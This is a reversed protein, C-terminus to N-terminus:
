QQLIVQVTFLRAWLDDQARIPDLGAGGNDNRVAMVTARNGNSDEICQVGQDRGLTEMVSGSAYTLNDWLTRNADTNELEYWLNIDYSHQLADSDRVPAGEGDQTNGALIVEAYYIPDGMVRRVASTATQNSFIVEHRYGKDVTVGSEIGNLKTELWDALIDRKEIATTM